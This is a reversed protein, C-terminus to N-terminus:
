AKWKRKLGKGGFRAAGKDAEGESDLVNFRNLLIEANQVSSNVTRRQAPRDGAAGDELEDNEGKGELESQAYFVQRTGDRGM